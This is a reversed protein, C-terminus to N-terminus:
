ATWTQDTDNVFQNRPSEHSFLGLNALTFMKLTLSLQQFGLSAGIPLRFDAATCSIWCTCLHWLQPLFTCHNRVDLPGLDELFSVELSPINLFDKWILCHSIHIVLLRQLIGGSALPNSLTVCLLRSHYIRHHTARCNSGYALLTSKQCSLTYLPWAVLWYM